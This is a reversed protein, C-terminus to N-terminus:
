SNEKTMDVVEVIDSGGPPVFAAINETNLIKKLDKFDDEPIIKKLERLVKKAADNPEFKGPLLVTYYAATKRVASEPGGIVALEPELQLGIAVKLGVNRFYRREGRVIFAGRKVFEGSEATKSVQEPKAAYVDCNFHGSKWANSYSAAFEAVEDWSKTDGKVVVVSGGHVDAHVFYDNGELYKKGIDENSGADRGGIVLIGDSTIFWRYKHYWKKKLPKYEQRKKAVKEKPKFKEMAAIAGTKKKKFKKIEGYYRNANAETNENIFIKVRKGNVIVDVASESPYVRVISKAAPLSSNKLTEEIEQWSLKASADRLTDIIGAIEQYNEYIADVTEQLEEIKKEFKVIAEQQRRRIIESKPLKEKKSAKVASEPLPFYASLAENYTPFSSVPEEGLLPYPWCGSKTIVANTERSLLEELANLIIQPDADAAKISKDYGAIRCVEEAYRGGLVFDSALTRVLDRESKELTIRIGDITIEDTGTEPFIYEKGSIIERDRFHQRKLPNIVIFNEDCLVANGENFLEFILNYEKESKGITIIFIRQLGYQRIDLIRGGSIYKRLFMSYGSPNPPADPLNEALHARKGCEVLFNYKSKDEGNLRFGFSETNYQYVKGIWLPLRNKIEGLMTRIDISSMGQQTAM